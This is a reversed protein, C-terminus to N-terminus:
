RRPQVVLVDCPANSVVASTVRGLVAEPMMARGRSGTIILDAGVQEAAAVIGRAPDGRVVRTAATVEDLEGAAQELVNRASAEANPDGEMVGQGVNELHGTSQVLHIMGGSALALAVASRLAAQAGDSGDYAVLINRYVDHRQNKSTTADFRAAFVRLV